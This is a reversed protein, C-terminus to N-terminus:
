RYRIVPYISVDFNATVRVPITEFLSSVSTEGVLYIEGQYVKKKVRDQPMRDMDFLHCLLGKKIEFERSIAGNMRVEVKAMMYLSQIARIIWEEVNNARTYYV